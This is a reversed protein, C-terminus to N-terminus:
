FSPADAAAPAGEAAAGETGGGYFDRYTYDGPIFAPPGGFQPHLVPAFKEGDWRMNLGGTFPDSAHGVAGGPYGHFVPTGDSYIPVEAHGFGGSFKPVWHDAGAHVMLPDSAAGQSHRFRANESFSSYGGYPMRSKVNTRGADFAKPNRASSWVQKPFMVDGPANFFSNARRYPNVSGFGERRNFYPLRRRRFGYQGRRFSSGGPFSGTNHNEDPTRKFDSPVPHFHALYSSAPNNENSRGFRPSFGHPNRQADTGRNLGFIANVGRGVLSGAKQMMRGIFRADNTVELLSSAQQSKANLHTQVELISELASPSGITYANLRDAYFPDPRESAYAYPHITDSYEVALTPESYVVNATKAYAVGLLLTVLVVLTQLGLHSSARMSAVGRESRECV